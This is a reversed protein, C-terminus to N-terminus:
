RCLEWGSAHVTYIDPSSRGIRSVSEKWHGGCLLMLASVPRQRDHPGGSANKRLQVHVHYQISLGDSSIEQCIPGVELLSIAKQLMAWLM